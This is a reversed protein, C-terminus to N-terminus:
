RAQLRSALHMSQIRMYKNVMHLYFTTKNGLKKNKFILEAAKQEFMNKMLKCNLYSMQLVDKSTNNAFLSAIQATTAKNKGIKEIIESTIEKLKIENRYVKYSNSKFYSVFATYDFKHGNCLKKTSRRSNKKQHGKKRILKM